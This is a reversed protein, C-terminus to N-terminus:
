RFKAKILSRFEKVFPLLFWLLFLFARRFFVVLSIFILMQSKFPLVNFHSHINFCGVYICKAVSELSKSVSQFYNSSCVRSFVKHLKHHLFLNILFSRLCNQTLHSKFLVLHMIKWIYITAFNNSKISIFRIPNLIVSKSRQFYIFYITMWIYNWKLTKYFDFGMWFFKSALLIFTFHIWVVPFHM